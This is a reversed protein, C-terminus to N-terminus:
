KLGDVYITVPWRKSGVYVKNVASCSLANEGTHSRQHQVSRRHSKNQIVTQSSDSSQFGDLPDSSLDKNQFASSLDSIIAREEHTDETVGCDDTRFDSMVHKESIRTCDDPHNDTPIDEITQEDSRVYTDEAKINTLDKGLNLLKNGDIQDDYPISQHEESGDQLLLPSPCREDQLLLLSPTTKEEKIPPQHDEIMVNKYLDKYEELYESEEMSFYVAVDQCRIPVEGTLLEIIKNTLELIKERNVKEHIPIPPTPRSIPSLIGGRGEPVPAQCHESSTKKMVIYEEGTLRLLIELTLNIISETMKDGDRDM